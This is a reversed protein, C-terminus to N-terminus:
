ELPHRWKLGPFRAFGRDATIWECGSEIAMAALYADPVDNGKANIEKCLDLFIIWHKEGPSIRVCHPNATIQDVFALAKELKAPPDFIQPNTVIRLFGSLVLDSMGFQEDLELLNELWEKFRDSESMEGTFANVLINVDVLYM